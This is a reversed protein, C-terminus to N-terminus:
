FSSVEKFHKWLLARVLGSFTQGQKKLSDELKDCFDKKLLIMKRKNEM